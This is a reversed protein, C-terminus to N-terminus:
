PLTNSSNQVRLKSVLRIGKLAILLFKKQVSKTTAKSIKELLFLSVLSNKSFNKFFYRFVEKRDNFGNETIEFVNRDKKGAFEVALITAIAHQYVYKNSMQSNHQRYFTLEIDLNYIDTFNSLRLWLDFDESLDVDKYKLVRRYGGARLVMSKRFMVSPHALLCKRRFDPSHNLIGIPYKSNGTVNGDEDIFTIQSGVVGVNKYDNLFDEQIEFRNEYVKDDSDLRAIFENKSIKIGTNLADVLGSGENVVIRVCDMKILRYILENSIGDDVILIESPLRSSNVISNLTELISVSNGRFPILVTFSL